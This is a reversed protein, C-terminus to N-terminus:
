NRKELGVKSSATCKVNCGAQHRFYSQSFQGIMLPIWATVILCFQGIMSVVVWWYRDKYGSWKQIITEDDNPRVINENWLRFKFIELEM